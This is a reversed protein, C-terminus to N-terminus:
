ELCFVSNKVKNIGCAMILQKLKCSWWAQGPFCGFDLLFFGTGPRHSLNARSAARFQPDAMAATHDQANDYYPYLNLLILQRNNSTPLTGIFPAPFINDIITHPSPHPYKLNFEALQPTDIGLWYPATNNLNLWPNICSM